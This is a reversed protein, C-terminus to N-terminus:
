GLQILYSAAMLMCCVSFYPSMKMSLDSVILQMIDLNKKYNKNFYCSLPTLQLTFMNEQALHNINIKRKKNKQILKNDNCQCNQCSTNMEDPKVMIDKGNYNGIGNGYNFQTYYEDSLNRRHRYVSGRRHLMLSQQINRRVAPVPIGNSANITSVGKPLKQKDAAAAAAATKQLSRKRNRSIVLYTGITCLLLAAALLGQLEFVYSQRSSALVIILPVIDIIHNPFTKKIQNNNKNVTGNKFSKCSTSLNECNWCYEDILCRTFDIDNQDNIMIRKKNSLIQFNKNDFSIPVSSNKSPYNFNSDSSQIIEHFVLSFVKSIGISFTNGALM